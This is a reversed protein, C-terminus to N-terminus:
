TARRRHRVMLVPCPAERVVKEAVSGMLMHTVGSRGHTGMVILDIDRDSAFRVIEDAPVGIRMAYEPRLQKTEEPSAVLELRERAMKEFQGMPFDAEFNEGTKGPVHLLYLQASFTQVLGFGYNLAADSTESFDTPVLIRKLALMM